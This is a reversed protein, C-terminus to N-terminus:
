STRIPGRDQDVPGYSTVVIQVVSNSVRGVMSAVSGNLQQLANFHGSAEQANSPLASLHFLLGSAAVAERVLRRTVNM